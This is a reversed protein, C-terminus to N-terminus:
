VAYLYNSRLKKKGKILTGDNKKIEGYNDSLKKAIYRPYDYYLMLTQHIEKPLDEQKKSSAVFGPLDISKVWHTGYEADYHLDIKLEKPLPRVKPEPLKFLEYKIKDFLDGLYEYM